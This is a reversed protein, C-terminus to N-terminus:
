EGGRCSGGVARAIEFLQGVEGPLTVRLASAAEGLEGVARAVCPAIGQWGSAGSADVASEAAFLAAKSARLAEELRFVPRMCSHWEAFSTASESCRADAARIEGAGIVDASVLARAGAELATRAHLEASACGSMAGMGLVMALPLITAIGPPEGDDASRGKGARLRPIIAARDDLWAAAIELGAVIALMIQDDKPSATRAAFVFLAKALGRLARVFGALALLITECAIGVAGVAAVIAGWNEKILEILEVM